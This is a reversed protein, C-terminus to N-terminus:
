PRLAGTLSGKFAEVEREADQASLGYKERIKSVLRNRDGAIGKLEDQTLKDWKRQIHPSIDNWKSELEKWEM